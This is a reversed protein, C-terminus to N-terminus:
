STQESTWHHRRKKPDTEPAPLLGEAIALTAAETKSRVDLKRYINKVHSQVTGVGIGLTRGVTAYTQGSALHSLVDIERPTLQEPRQTRPIQQPSLVWNTLMRTLPPSFVAGGALTSEIALLLREPGEEKLILSQGGARLFTMLLEPSAQDSFGVIPRAPRIEGMAALNTKGSASGPDLVVVEFSLGQEILVRAESAHACAAALEFAPQKWSILQGLADRVHSREELILVSIM